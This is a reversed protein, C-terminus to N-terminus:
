RDAGTRWRDCCAVRDFAHRTEPSETNENIRKKKRVRAFRPVQFDKKRDAARCMADCFLVVRATQCEHTFLFFMVRTEDREAELAKEDKMNASFFMGAPTFLAIIL